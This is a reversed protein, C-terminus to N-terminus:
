SEVMESTVDHAESGYTEIQLNIYQVPIEKLTFAQTDIEKEYNEFIRINLVQM